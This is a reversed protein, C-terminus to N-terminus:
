IGMGVWNHRTKYKKQLMVTEDMDIVHYAMILLFLSFFNFLNM